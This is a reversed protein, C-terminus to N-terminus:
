DLLSNLEELIPDKEEDDSGGITNEMILDEITNYLKMCLYYYNNTKILNPNNLILNVIMKQIKDRKVNFLMKLQDYIDDTLMELMSENIIDHIDKTTKDEEVPIEEKTTKNEKTEEEKTTKNEKTEEEKTTKNEKTEEKTTKNEKTEKKTTKNEKTEKKTTKNISNLANELKLLDKERDNLSVVSIIEKDSFGAKRLNQVRNFVEPRIGEENKIASSRKTLRKFLM